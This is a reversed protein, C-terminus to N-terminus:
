PADRWILEYGWGWIARIEIDAGVQRLARRLLSVHTQVAAVDNEARPLLMLLSSFSVRSHQALFRLLKVRTPTTPVREGNWFMEPPNTRIVLGGKLYTEPMAQGCSDCLAM